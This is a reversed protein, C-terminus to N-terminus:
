YPRTAGLVGAVCLRRRPPATAGVALPLWLMHPQPPGHAALVTHGGGTVSPPRAQEGACRVCRSASWAPRSHAPTTPATAASLWPGAPLTAPGPRTWLNATGAGRLVRVRSRALGAAVRDTVTMRSGGDVMLGAAQWFRALARLVRHARASCVRVWRGLGPLGAGEGAGQEGPGLLEMLLAKDAPTMRAYVACSRVAAACHYRPTPATTASCCPQHAALLACSCAVCRPKRAYM